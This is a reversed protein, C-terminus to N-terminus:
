GCKLEHPTPDYGPVGPVGYGPTVVVELTDAAPKQPVVERVAPSPAIEEHLRPRGADRRAARRRGQPVTGGLARAHPSSSTPWTGRTESAAYVISTDGVLTAYAQGSIVAQM